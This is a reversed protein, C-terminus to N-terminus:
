ENQSSLIAGGIGAMAVVPNLTVVGAMAILLSAGTGFKRTDARQVPRHDDEDEDDEDEDDDDEDEDDDDSSVPSPSLDDDDDLPPSDYDVPSSARSSIRLDTIENRLRETEVQAQRHRDDAERQLRSQSDQWRQREREQQQRESAAQAEIRRDRAHLDEHWKRRDEDRQEREKRAQDEYRQNMAAMDDQWKRREREQSERARKADEEQKQRERKAEAAIRQQQEHMDREAKRRAENAAKTEERLDRIMRSYKQESEQTLRELDIKLDERAKDAARLKEDMKIEQQRLEAAMFEDREQLAELQEERLSQIESVYKERLEQLDKEVERGASTDVLNRHEDVMEEQIRLAAPRTHMLYGIISRASEPTDMHRFVKSGQEHMGGWWDREALLQAENQEGQVQTQLREWMTTALIVNQFYKDGCLKKFMRLNRMASGGMRNDTIRHLYIIGALKINGAYMRSLFTAVDKLVDTDSRNTDDFGPTDLLYVRQQPSYMFAYPFVEATCSQLQHGVRVEDGVLKSIFTSKGSGTIGM